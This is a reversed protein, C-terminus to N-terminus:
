TWAEPHSADHAHILSHGYLDRCRKGLRDIISEALVERMELERSLQPNRERERECLAIAQKARAGAEGPLNREAFGEAQAILMDVHEIPDTTPITMVKLTTVAREPHFGFSPM